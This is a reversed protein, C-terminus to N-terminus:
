QALCYALRYVASATDPAAGHRTLADPSLVQGAAAQVTEPDVGEVLVVWRALVDTRDQLAGERTSSKASTTAADAECWHVGVIGPRDALAALADGELWRRLQEAGGPAPGIDLTALAGGV